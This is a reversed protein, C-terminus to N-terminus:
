PWLFEFSIILDRMIHSGDDIIISLEGTEKLVNKLFPIDNQSGLFIKIREEQNKMSNPNIDIGFISAQPFYEKWARLSNGDSVGIELLNFKEERLRTFFTDYTNLYNHWKSNKDCEFKIGIEDLTM